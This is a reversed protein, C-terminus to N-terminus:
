RGRSPHIPSAKRGTTYTFFLGKSATASRNFKFSKTKPPEEQFEWYFTVDVPCYSRVKAINKQDLKNADLIKQIDEDTWNRIKLEGYKRATDSVVEKRVRLGTWGRLDVGIVKQCHNSKETNKNKEKGGESDRYHVIPYGRYFGDFGTSKIEEKWAPVYDKDKYLEVDVMEGKVIVFGEDKACGNYKLWEVAQGIGETIGGKIETEAKRGDDIIRKLINNEMQRGIKRGYENGEAGSIPYKWDFLAKKSVHYHWQNKIDKEIKYNRNKLCLSLVPVSRSYGEWFKAEHEKVKSEDLPADAIEKTEKDEQEADCLQIWNKVGKIPHCLRQFVQKVIEIDDMTVKNAMNINAKPSKAKLAYAALFVFVRAMEHYGTIGLGCSSYSGSFLDRSTEMTSSFIRKYDVLTEPSPPISIYFNVLEDFDVNIWQSDEKSFLREIATPTVQGSKALGILWGGLVFHQRVVDVHDFKIKDDQFVIGRGADCLQVILETDNKQIALKLWQTLGEHLVLRMENTNVGKSEVDELWRSADKYFYGFEARMQWLTKKPEREAEGIVAYMEQVLPTLMKMAYHDMTQMINKVQNLLSRRVIHALEDVVDTNKVELLERLTLPYLRLFRWERCINAGVADRIVRHNKRVQRVISQPINIADLYAAVQIPNANRVARKMAENLKNEQSDWFDDNEKSLKCRRWRLAKNALTQAGSLIQQNQQINECILHGFSTYENDFPSNLYLEADNEKLFNNLKELYKLNYDKYVNSKSPKSSLTVEKMDRNSDRKLYKSYSQSPPHIAAERCWEEIYATHKKSLLATYSEKLYGWTLKRAVYQSVVTISKSESFCRIAECMVFALTILSNFAVGLSAACIGAVALTPMKEITSTVYGVAGCLAAILAMRCFTETRCSENLYEGTFKNGEGISRALAVLSIGITFVPITIKLSLDTWNHFFEASCGPVYHAFVVGGIGCGIMIVSFLIWNPRFWDLGYNWFKTREGRCASPKAADRYERIYTTLETLAQKVESEKKVCSSLWKAM